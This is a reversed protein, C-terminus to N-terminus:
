RTCQRNFAMMRFAAQGDLLQARHRRDRLAGDRRQAPVVELADTGLRDGAQAADEADPDPLQEVQQRLVDPQRNAQRALHGDM